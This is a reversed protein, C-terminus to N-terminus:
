RRAICKEQGLRGSGRRQGYNLMFGGVSSFHAKPAVAACGVSGSATTAEGLIFGGLGESRHVRMSAAEDAVALGLVVGGAEEVVFPDM